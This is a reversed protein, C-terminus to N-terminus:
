GQHQAVLFLWNSVVSAIRLGSLMPAELSCCSRERRSAPCHFATPTSVRGGMDCFSSGERGQQLMSVGELLGHLGSALGQWAHIPDSGRTCSERECRRIM